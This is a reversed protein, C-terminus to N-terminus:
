RRSYTPFLYSLALSLSDRIVALLGLSLWSIVTDAIIIAQMAAWFTAAQPTDPEDNGKALLCWAIWHLLLGSALSISPLKLLTLAFFVSVVRVIIAVATGASVAKKYILLFNELPSLSSSLM